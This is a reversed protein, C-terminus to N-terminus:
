LIVVHLCLTDTLNTIPTIPPTIKVLTENVLIFGTKM